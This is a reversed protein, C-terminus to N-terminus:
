HDFAIMDPSRGAVLAGDVATTVAQYSPTVARPYGAAVLAQKAGLPVRRFGFDAQKDKAKAM